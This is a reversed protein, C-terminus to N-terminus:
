MVSFGGPAGDPFAVWGNGDNLNYPADAINSMWWIATTGIQNPATSTTVVVWYKTGAVLSVGAHGFNAAALLCPAAPATAIVSTGIQTGPVEACADSYIAVTFKTSSAVCFGSDTISM